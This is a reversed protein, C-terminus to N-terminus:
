LLLWPLFIHQHMELCPTVLLVSTHGSALCDLRAVIQKQLPGSFLLLYCRNDADVIVLPTM